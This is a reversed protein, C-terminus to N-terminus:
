GSWTIERQDAIRALVDTGTALVSGDCPGIRRKEHRVHHAAHQVFAGARLARSPKVGSAAPLVPVVLSRRSAQNTPKM